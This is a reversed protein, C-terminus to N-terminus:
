LNDGAIYGTTWAFQLNFGGCKGACDLIEGAFYLGPRFRSEMTAPNIESLRIGGATVQAEAYGKPGSLFVKLNILNDLLKKVAEEKLHAAPMQSPIGALKLLVLALKDDLLGQFCKEIPFSGYEKFRHRLFHEFEGVKGFEPFFNIRIETGSHIKQAFFVSADFIVSGSLGYKTFLLDGQFSEHGALLRTKIKLGQLTHFIKDTVVVPCLAPYTPSATHGYLEALSYGDGSTGLSPHALGGTSILVSDARTSYGDKCAITFGSNKSSIAQVASKVRIGVGYRQSSNWLVDYVSKSSFTRPFIRGEEEVTELGLESFWDITEKCGFASIIERVEKRDGSAYCSASINTNSLNCRGSGAVLIKSMPKIQKELIEVQNGRKAACIAGIMGSAGAGIIVTKKM